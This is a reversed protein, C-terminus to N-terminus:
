KVIVKPEYGEFSFEVKKNRSGYIPEGAVSGIMTPPETSFSIVTSVDKAEHTTGENVLEITAMQDDFVTIVQVPKRESM